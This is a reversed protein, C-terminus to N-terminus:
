HNSAPAAFIESKLKEFLEQNTEANEDPTESAANNKSKLENLICTQAKTLTEFLKEDVKGKLIELFNTVFKGPLNIPSKFTRQFLFLCSKHLLEQLNEANRVDFESKKLSELILLKEKKKDIKGIYVDCDECSKSFAESFDALSDFKKCLAMLCQKQADNRINSILKLRQDTTMDTPNGVSCNYEDLIINVLTSIANNCENKMVQQEIQTFHSSDKFESVSKELLPLCAAFDKLSNQMDTVSVKKEQNKEFETRLTEQYLKRLPDYIIEALSSCFSDSPSEDRFKEELLAEIDSTKLVEALFKDTLSKNESSEQDSDSLDHDDHRDRFKNKVAKKTKAERGGRGGVSMAKNSGAKKGMAKQKREEKKSNSAPQASSETTSNIIKEVMLFNEQVDKLAKNKVKEHFIKQLDSVFSNSVVVTDCLVSIDKKFSPNNEACKSYIQLINDNSLLSPLISGLDLWSRDCICQELAAIPESVVSEMVCCDPLFMLKVDEYNQEIFSKPEAIALKSLQHFTIIGTSELSKRVSDIQHQLFIKPIFVSNIDSGRDFSGSVEKKSILDNVTSLLIPESVKIISILTKLSIPKTTALLAGKVKGVQSAQHSATMLSQKDPTYFGDILSGIYKGFQDHVFSVPLDYKSCIEGFPLVGSEQLKLNTEIAMQEIYSIQIIESNVMFVSSSGTIIEKVVPEVHEVSVNLTDCLDVLGIRGKAYELEQEVEIRLQKPTLYERGDLTFILNILNKNTLYSVLEVCNRDSLRIEGTTAQVEQLQLALEYAEAWSM